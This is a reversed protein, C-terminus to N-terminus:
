ARCVRSNRTRIKSVSRERESVSRCSPPRPCRQYFGSAFFYKERVQQAQPAHMGGQQYQQLHEYQGQLYRPHGPHQMGAHALSRRGSGEARPRARTKTKAINWLAKAKAGFIRSSLALAKMRFTKYANSNRKKQTGDECVEQACITDNPALLMNGSAGMTNGRVHGGTRGRPTPATHASASSAAM